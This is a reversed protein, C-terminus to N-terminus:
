VDACTVLELAATVAVETGAVLVNESAGAALLLV